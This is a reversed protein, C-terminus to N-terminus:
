LYRVTTSAFLIKAMERLSPSPDYFLNVLHIRMHACRYHSVSLLAGERVVASTHYLMGIITDCVTYKKDTYPMHSDPILELDEATYTLIWQDIKGEAIFTLMAGPDLNILAEAQRITQPVNYM